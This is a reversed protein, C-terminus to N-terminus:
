KTLSKSRNDIVRYGTYRPLLRRDNSFFRSAVPRNLEGSGDIFDFADVTMELTEIRSDATYRVTMGRIIDERVDILLIVTRAHYLRQARANMKMTVQVLARGGSRVDRCEASECMAFLTDQLMSLMEIRKRRMGPLDADGLYILGRTPIVTFSQRRDQYVEIEGTVFQVVSDSMKLEVHTTVDELKLDPRMRAHVTYRMAYARGALPANMTRYISRALHLCDSGQARAASFAAVSLAAILAPLIATRVTTATRRIV